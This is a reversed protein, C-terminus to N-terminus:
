RFMKGTGRYPNVEFFINYFSRCSTYNYSPLPEWFNKRATMKVPSCFMTRCTAAFLMTQNYLRPILKQTRGESPLYSINVIDVLANVM